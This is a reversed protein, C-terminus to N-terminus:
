NKKMAYRKTAKALNYGRLFEEKVYDGNSFRYVTVGTPEEFFFRTAFATAKFTVQRKGDKTMSALFMAINHPVNEPANTPPPAPKKKPPAGGVSVVLTLVLLVALKRM